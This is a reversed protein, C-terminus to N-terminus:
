VPAVVMVEPVRARVPDPEIALELPTASLPIKEMAPVVEPADM